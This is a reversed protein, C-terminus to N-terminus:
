RGSAVGERRPDVAGVLGDPGIRIAHMGSDLETERVPYGIAQLGPSLQLAATGAELEYTGYRNVLHPAALAEDLPENWDLIRVLKTAVFPIIRSGGTAGIALVPAGDEFVITPAMSSRPRKGGEVRNAVIAGDREPLFSFDTLESNLLFGRVMLGSGFSKEISTTMSVVNGAKDVIVFHSTSPVEASLDDGLRHTRDDPPEGARVVDADLARDGDLLAARGALYAPDLLSRPAPAFDPDAIFRDRDAFALRTADGIRRWAEPDNDNAAALDMPEIMAFIQALTHGASSPPGMGCIRWKRYAFCLPDREVARYAALDEQRLIGPEVPSGAVAAVIDNAIDGEYFARAGDRAIRELTEAYELNRVITGAFLPVAEETMFYARTDPFPFLDEAMASISEALRPSITFGERALRIAPLLVQEWPLVGFRRHAEAMLAVTGPTGVARGGQSAVEFNKPAGDAGFFYGPTAALPATERGDLSILKGTAADYYLLFAGGGLGSSQPEVLGLVAQVAVMADIANGGAAIIEHGAKTAAEHATVVMFERARVVPRFRSGTAIEPALEAQQPLVPRAFAIFIGM